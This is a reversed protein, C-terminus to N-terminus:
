QLYYLSQESSSWLFSGFRCKQLLDAEEVAFLIVIKMCITLFRLLYLISVLYKPWIYRAEWSSNLTETKDESPCISIVQFLEDEKLMSQFLCLLM